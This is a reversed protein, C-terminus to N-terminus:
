ADLDVRNKELAANLNCFSAVIGRQVRRFCLKEIFAHISDHTDIRSTHSDQFYRNLLNLAEFIDVHYTLTLQFGDAAFLNVLNQNEETDLFLEM